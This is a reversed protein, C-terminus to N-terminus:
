EREREREREAAPSPKAQTYTYTRSCSAVVNLVTLIDNTLGEGTSATHETTTQSVPLTLPRRDYIITITGSNM